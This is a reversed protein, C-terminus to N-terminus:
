TIQGLEFCSHVAQLADLGDSEDVMCSTRIESTAIMQINIGAISLSRFMKAAVGPTNRIGVGVASVRSITSGEELRVGPWPSLLETLIGRAKIRDDQYLTLIIDRSYLSSSRIRYELQVMSGIPIFADALGRCITALVISHNPVNLISIQVQNIDLAVGKVKSGNIDDLSSSEYLQCNSLEFAHLVAKLAKSAEKNQILCSVKVESTAIARLNINNKALVEFLRALTGYRSTIGVGSISLKSVEGEGIVTADKAKLSNLIRRCISCAKELQQDALTFSITVTGNFNNVQAILDISVNASALGEFLTATIGVIDPLHCIRVIAQNEILKASDVSKGIELGENNMHKAYGGVLSTGPSLTWSSRVSLLVGYNRAIEVARPHLVAAGLSALELMEDCSITKILQATEVARPDTTLIGIVDTYIECADANLAAAIAVASTDSGGRGLTTIEPFGNSSQTTGQFGAVIVVQDQELHKLIRETQIKLIRAQGHTAETLIGVQTGTMSIAAIGLRDLAIALLAISVQEGTSLLMDIERSPPNPHIQYAMNILEDTTDGMASVVIVLDLGERHKIAIRKAIAYIRELNGVSTGGFKQVVLAM